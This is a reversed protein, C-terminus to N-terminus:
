QPKARVVLRKDDDGRPDCTTLTLGNYNEAQVVGWETSDVYFVKEVLYVYETGQYTLRITDQGSRLKKLDKFWSGYVNLHGAIATNKGKGPLSSQPYWGPGIRLDGPTTGQVVGVSLDISPIKLLFIASKKPKEPEQAIPNEQNDSNEVVPSVQPEQAAFEQELNRQQWKSYFSTFPSYLILLIGGLILLTGIASVVKKNRKM